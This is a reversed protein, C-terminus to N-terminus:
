RTMDLFPKLDGQAIALALQARWVNLRAMADDVEAQSLMRQADAVEILTGLGAKYRATVQELTTKLAGVQDPTVAAIQRAGAIMARARDEAGKVETSLLSRRATEKRENALEIEKKVRLTKYDLMSWTMSFSLAWNGINPGFGNLGGQDPGIISAGTGRGYLAGQTGFKPYFSKDLITQRAKVEEIAATQEAIAPHNAGTTTAAVEPAANLFKASALEGGSAERGVMQGLAARAMQEAQRAQYLFTTAVAQEAKLRSLDAGPRLEAKVLAGVLTDLQRTREIAAQAADINRQAALITLYADATAAAVEFKTKEISLEARRKSASAADVGAQRLGFDFPEWSVLVGAATGFVNRFKSADLVPGSIAPIVANPLLLGYVNNHTARNAQLLLDARPLFSMRALAVASSAASAQEISVQISPYKAVAANVAQELTLQSQGLATAAFVILLVRFMM